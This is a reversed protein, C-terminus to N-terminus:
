KSSFSSYFLIISWSELNYIKLRFFIEDEDANGVKGLLQGFISDDFLLLLNQTFWFKWLCVEDSGVWLM